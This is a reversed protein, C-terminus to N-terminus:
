GNTKRLTRTKLIHITVGVAIVLLIIRWYLEDVVFFASYTITGWLLALTLVKLKLPIGKGERYNRIYSGFLRNNLMWDYFRRSSRAYCAVALLFFPTAPLLPLFIGLVGLGVFCTGLVVLAGRLLRDSVKRIKESSTEGAKDKDSPQGVKQESLVKLCRGESDYYGEIEKSM